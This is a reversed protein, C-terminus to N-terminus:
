AILLEFEKVYPCRIYEYIGIIISSYVSLVFFSMFCFSRQVVGQNMIPLSHPTVLLLITNLSKLVVKVNNNEKIREAEETLRDTAGNNVSSLQFGKDSRARM